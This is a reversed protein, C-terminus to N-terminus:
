KRLTQSSINVLLSSVATEFYDISDLAKSLLMAGELTALIHSAVQNANDTQHEQLRAAIWNINEQFFYQIAQKVTDPLLDTETALAACLCIKKDLCLAQRFLDIYQALQRDLPDSFPIERLKELFRETYDQALAAALDAKTPFHYHISASKIGIEKAIERFSFATYGGSRVYREASALIRAVTDSPM